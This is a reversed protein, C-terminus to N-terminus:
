CRHQKLSLTVDCVEQYAIAEASDEMIQSVKDLDM